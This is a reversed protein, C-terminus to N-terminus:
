TGNQPAEVKDVLVIHEGNRNEVRAGDNVPNFDIEIRTNSFMRFGPIFTLLFLTVSLTLLWESITSVLFVPRLTDWKTGLGADRAKNYKTKSVAFTVFLITSLVSTVIQSIQAALFRQRGQQQIVDFQRIKWTIVVQVWAYVMGAGFCLFAGAYHPPKMTDVQFCAVFLLGLGSVMGLILGARNTNLWRKLNFSEVPRYQMLLKKIFLYQMEANAALFVAGTAITITFIGREPPKVGTYSIYPFDPFTHNNAVAIAYTVVCSGFIWIFTLIPLIWMRGGLCKAAVLLM